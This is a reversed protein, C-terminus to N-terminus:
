SIDSLVHKLGLFICNQLLHSFADPLGADGGLELSTRLASATAVSGFAKQLM